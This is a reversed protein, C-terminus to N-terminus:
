KKAIGKLGIRLARAALEQITENRPSSAAAMRLERHIDAPIKLNKVDQGM